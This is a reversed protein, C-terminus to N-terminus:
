PKEISIQYILKDKGGLQYKYREPGRLFDFYRLNEDIALKIAQVTNEIGVSLNSYQPDYGSNYLLFSDNYNFGLSCSVANDEIFTFGLRLHSKQAAQLAVESFFLEREKSMFHSKEVSSKRHLNFFMSMGDQLDDTSQYNVHKIEHTTSLRKLKRRIEHRHKKALLGIYTDWDNQLVSGPTVDEQVLKYKLGLSLIVKPLETLLPSDEPVSELVINNWEISNIFSMISLYVENEYGPVILFDQYDFLDTGGMFRITKGELMLPAIGVVEKQDYITLLLPTREGIFHRYWTKQWWQTLFITNTPNTKLIRDWENELQDYNDHKVIQM